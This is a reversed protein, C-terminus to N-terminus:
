AQKQESCVWEKCQWQRLNEGFIMRVLLAKVSERAKSMMAGKTASKYFGIALDKNKISIEACKGIVKINKIPLKM